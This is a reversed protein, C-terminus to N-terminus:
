AVPGIRKKGKKYKLVLLAVLPLASFIIRIYLRDSVAVTKDFQAMVQPIYSAVAGIGYVILLTTIAKPKDMAFVILGVVVVAVAIIIWRHDTNALSISGVTKQFLHSISSLANM